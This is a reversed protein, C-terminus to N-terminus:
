QVLLTQYKKLIQKGTLIDQIEANIKNEKSRNFINNVTQLKNDIILLNGENEM